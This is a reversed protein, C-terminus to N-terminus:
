CLVVSNHSLCVIRYTGRLNVGQQASAPAGNSGPQDLDSTVRIYPHVELEWRTM